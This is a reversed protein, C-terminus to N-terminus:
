LTINSLPKREGEIVTFTTRGVLAGRGTEVSCRWVGPELQGKITYGRYGTSRGGTIPFSILSRTHWAESTDNYKEWRHYIAASLGVPARVSSFCYALGERTATFTSNTLRFFEYWKPKEFAVAYGDGTRTISHFIGIHNLSLPVPPIVNYFYLGIFLVGVGLLTMGVNKKVGVFGAPSVLYMLFMLLSVAAGAFFVSGIFIGDGMQKLLVPVVLAAYALSLFFWAGIHFNLITYKKRLFENALVFTGFVAFFLFSGEFTGSQGYLVLLGGALNGFCFQLVLLLYLPVAQKERGFFSLALISLASAVIYVGLVITGFIEDPGGLTLTDFIFGGILAAIGVHREYREAFSICNQVLQNKLLSTVVTHM